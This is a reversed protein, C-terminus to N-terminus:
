NDLVEGQLSVAVIDAEVLIAFTELSGLVKPNM